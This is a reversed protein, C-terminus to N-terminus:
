AGHPLANSTSRVIARVDYIQAIHGREILSSLLEQSGHFLIARAKDGAADVHPVDKTM